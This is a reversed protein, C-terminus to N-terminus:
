LEAKESRRTKRRQRMRELRSPERPEAKPQLKVYDALGSLLSGEGGAAADDWRDQGLEWIMVGAM